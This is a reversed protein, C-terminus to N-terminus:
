PTPAAGRLGEAIVALEAARTPQGLTEYIEVLYRAARYTERPRPPDQGAIVRYAPEMLAQADRHRGLRFLCAGLLIEAKATLFHDEGFAKRRIIVAQRLVPEAGAADGLKSKSAGIGLLLYSLNPHDEGLSQRAKALAETYREAALAYENRFTALAGLNSMSSLVEPHDEGLRGRFIALSESLLSEPKRYEGRDILTSALANLVAAVKPHDDGFHRRYRALVDRQLREAEDFRGSQTLLAGLEVLTAAVEPNRDGLEQRRLELAEHFLAESEEYRGRERLVVALETLSTAVEPDHEDLIRRRLELAQRHLSEAREHDGMELHLNGLDALSEAIARHRPGLERRRLELAEDLLLEADDWLGLRRYINGITRQLDARIEDHEQPLAAIRGASRHLIERATMEPEATEYPDAVAFIGGLLEAYLRAQDRQQTLRWSQVALGIASGLVFLLFAAAISAFTRNRRLFRGARYGLTAPRARVPLGVRHRRLDEALQEASVYRRQPERRLAMGAITDLDGALRRRLAAPQVRRADTVEAAREASMAAITASPPRPEQETLRREVDVASCGALDYPREGTLLEFLLVGLSYVDSATTVTQGRIQEPSAYEPTLLRQWPLTPVLQDGSLEPNLLKAIGFDLLKPVGDATVLINGPKLDCHVILNQHAYHVASCVTRLLELRAGITLRHHDCYTTIPEGEVHEMVVYPVGPQGDRADTTGADYLAAINPHDLSALIQRERRLRQRQRDSALRHLLKVAVRRRFQDDDRVGLWVTSSGGEGLPRVLRYRGATDPVPPTVALPERGPSDDDLEAIAPRELFSAADADAVILREVAHRLGPDSRCSRELLARRERPRLDVVEDFLEEARRWREPSM